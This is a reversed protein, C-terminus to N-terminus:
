KERRSLQRVSSFRKGRSRLWLQFRRTELPASDSAGEPFGMFAECLEPTPVLRHYLCFQAWNVSGENTKGPKPELTKSRKRLVGSPM